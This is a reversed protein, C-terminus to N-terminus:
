FQYNEESWKAYAREWNRGRYLNTGVKNNVVYNDDDAKFLIKLTRPHILSQWLDVKSKHTESKM